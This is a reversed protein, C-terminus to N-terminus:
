VITDIRNNVRFQGTEVCEVTSHFQCFVNLMLGTDLTQHGPVGMCCPTFYSVPINPLLDDICGHEALLEDSLRM